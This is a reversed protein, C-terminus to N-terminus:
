IRECISKNNEEFQNLFDDRKTSSTIIEFYKFFSQNDIRRLSHKSTVFVILSGVSVEYKRELNGQIYGLLERKTKQATM